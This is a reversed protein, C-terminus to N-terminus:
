EASRRNRRSSTIHAGLAAIRERAARAIAEWVGDLNEYIDDNLFRL